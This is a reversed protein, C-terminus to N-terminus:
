YRQPGIEEDFYIPEGINMPETPKNSIEYDATPPLYEGINVPEQYQQNLYTLEDPDRINKGIIKPPRGDDIPVADVDIYEGINIPDRGDYPPIADVDIYEGINIVTDEPDVIGPVDKHQVMPQAPQNKSPLTAYEKSAEETATKNTELQKPAAPLASEQQSDRSYQWMALALCTFTVLIVLRM